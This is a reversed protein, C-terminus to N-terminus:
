PPRLQQKGLVAAKALSLVTALDEDDLERRLGELFHPLQFVTRIEAAPSQRLLRAMLEDDTGEALVWRMKFGLPGGLAEVLDAMEADGGVEVFYGLLDNSYYVARRERENPTRLVKEYMYTFNVEEEMLWLLKETLM